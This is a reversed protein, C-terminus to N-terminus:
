EIKSFMIGYKWLLYVQPLEHPMAAVGGTVDDPSSAEERPMAAVGGTVDDPSSAEERPMAAVGGTVDDPSSAEERPMAAVGGSVDDPLPAAAAAAANEYSDDLDNDLAEKDAAYDPAAYLMPAADQDM